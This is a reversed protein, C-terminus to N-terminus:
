DVRMGNWILLLAPMVLIGNLREQRLCRKGKGQSRPSHVISGGRAEKGTDPARIKNSGVQQRPAEGLALQEMDRLLCHIGNWWCQRAWLM